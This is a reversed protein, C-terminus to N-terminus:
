VAEALAGDWSCTVPSWHDGSWGVAECAAKSTGAGVCECQCVQGHLQFLPEIQQHLRESCTQRAYVQEHLQFRPEIRQDLRESSTQRALEAISLTGQLM